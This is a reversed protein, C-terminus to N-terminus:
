DAVARYRPLGLSGRGFPIVRGAFADLAADLVEPEAWLHM